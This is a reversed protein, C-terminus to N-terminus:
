RSSQDVSERVHTFFKDIIEGQTENRWQLQILFDRGDKKTVLTLGDDYPLFHKETFQWCEGVPHIVGNYDVFEAIVCYKKGPTLEAATFIQGPLTSKVEQVSSIVRKTRTRISNHRSYAHWSIALWLIIIGVSIFPM